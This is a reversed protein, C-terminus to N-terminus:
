AFSANTFIRVNFWQESDGKELKEEATVTTAKTYRKKIRHQIVLVLYKDFESSENPLLFEIPLCYTIMFKFPQFGKYTIYQSTVLNYYLSNNRLKYPRAGDSIIRNLQNTSIIRKRTM